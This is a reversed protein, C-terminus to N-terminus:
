GEKEDWGYEVRIVGTALDIRQSSLAQLEGRRLGGYMATAWVARDQEPLVALLTEAETPSAVRDRRGRVAALELGDCVNAAVEGRSVARRLIARLPLFTVKITSPDLGESLLGDAFEQLDPRQLETQRVDGFEPLIRLRMAREYSRLTAPKYPDGSRNTITGAKAGVHFADM